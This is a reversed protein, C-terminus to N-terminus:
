LSIYSSFDEEQGSAPLNTSHLTERTNMQNKNALSFQSSVMNQSCNYLIEMIQKEALVRQQDNLQRLRTAVFKGFFDLEDDDEADLYKEAKELLRQKPFELHRKKKNRSVHVHRKFSSAAAGSNEATGSIELCASSPRSPEPTSEGATDSSIEEDGKPDAPKEQSDQNQQGQLNSTSERPTEQDSNIYVVGNADLDMLLAKIERLPLTLSTLKAEPYCSHPHDLKENSQKSGFIDDLITAKEKLFHTVSDYELCDGGIHFELVDALCLNGIHVDLAYGKNALEEGPCVEGWCAEVQHVEVEPRVDEFPSEGTPAEGVSATERHAKVVPHM